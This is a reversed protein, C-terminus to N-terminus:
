GDTQEREEKNKFRLLNHLIKRLFSNPFYFPTGGAGGWKWLKRSAPDAWEIIIKGVPLDIELDECLLQLAIRWYIELIPVLTNQSVGMEAATEQLIKGEVFQNFVRSSCDLVIRGRHDRHIATLITREM